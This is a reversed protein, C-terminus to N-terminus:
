AVADLREINEVVCAYDTDEIVYSENSSQYDAVRDFEPEDKMHRRMKGDQYYISLNDLRTIMVKGAPFGPVQAAPLNGLRKSSMIIDRAIQESPKEDSNVLPLYKDHLMDRGVLVVLETDSAAWDELLTEKADYVLADLTAYDAAPDSGYTVKGSAPTGESM